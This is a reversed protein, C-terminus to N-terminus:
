LKSDLRDELRHNETEILNVECRVRRIPLRRGDHDRYLVASKRLSGFNM